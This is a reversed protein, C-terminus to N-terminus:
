EKCVHSLRLTLEKRFDILAIQQLNNDNNEINSSINNDDGGVGRYLDRDHTNALHSMDGQRARELLSLSLARSFSLSLLPSPTSPNTQM